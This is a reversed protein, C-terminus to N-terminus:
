LQSYYRRGEDALNKIRNSASYCGWLLNFMEEESVEKNNEFIPALTRKMSEIENLLQKWYGEENENLVNKVSEAVIQKLKSESLKMKM